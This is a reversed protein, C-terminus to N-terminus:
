ISKLAKRWFFRPSECAKTSVVQLLTLRSEWNWCSPTCSQTEWRSCRWDMRWSNSSSPAESSDSRIRNKRLPRLGDIFAWISCRPRSCSLQSSSTSFAISASAFALRCGGDIRRSISWRQGRPLRSAWEVTALDCAEEVRSGRSSGTLFSGSGEAGFGDLEEGALLLSVESLFARLSFFFCRRKSWCRSQPRFFVLEVGAVPALLPVLFSM